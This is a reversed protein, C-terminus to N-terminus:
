CATGQGLPLEHSTNAARGESLWEAVSARLPLLCAELIQRVTLADALGTYRGTLSHVAAMPPTMACSPPHRLFPALSAAVFTRQAQGM